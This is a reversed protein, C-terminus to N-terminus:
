SVERRDPGALIENIVRREEANIQRDSGAVAELAQRMEDRSLHGGGDQWGEGTALVLQVLLELEAPSLKGALGLRERITKIEDGHLEGDAYAVRALAGGFSLLRGMDGGTLRRLTKVRASTEGLLGDGPAVLRGDELSILADAQDLVRKDHTVLLISANREAAIEHLLNMVAEGADRDLSATPEDALVLAPRNILARAIGARQQQGGSLQAPLKHLHETLGVREAVAEIRQRAEQARLSDGLQQGMRINQFLTLAPSLNHKQFIFGIRRRVKVRQRESAGVLETGLVQVKGDVASRLGGIITLLTSKGSGSPGTLVTIAGPRLAISVEELVLRDQPRDGHRYSLKEVCVAADNM